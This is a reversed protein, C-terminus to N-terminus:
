VNGIPQMCEGNKKNTSNQNYLYHLHNSIIKLIRQSEDKFSNVDSNTFACVWISIKHQEVCVLQQHQACTPNRAWEAFLIIRDLKADIWQEVGITVWYMYKVQYKFDSQM